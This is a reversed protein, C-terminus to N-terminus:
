TAKACSRTAEMRERLVVVLESNQTRLNKRASEALWEKIEKPLRVRLQPDNAKM